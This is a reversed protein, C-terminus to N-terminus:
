SKCTIVFPQIMSLLVTVTALISSYSTTEIESFRHIMLVYRSQNRNCVYLIIVKSSLDIALYLYTRSHFGAESHVNDHNGNLM